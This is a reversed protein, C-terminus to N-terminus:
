YCHFSYMLFIVVAIVCQCHYKPFSMVLLCMALPVPSVNSCPSPGTLSVVICYSVISCNMYRSAVDEQTAPSTLVHFTFLIILHANTFEPTCANALEANRTPPDTSVRHDFHHRKDRTWCSSRAEMHQEGAAAAWGRRRSPHVLCTGVYLARKSRYAPTLWWTSSYGNM